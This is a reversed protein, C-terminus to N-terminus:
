LWVEILLGVVILRANNFDYACTVLSVIKDEGAVGINTNILNVEKLSEIYDLFVEDDEFYLPPHDLIPHALYVAFPVIMYDQTPTYLYMYPNEDYFEQKRYHKLTGFMDDVRSEHGYILISKDSFDYANRYDLFISGSRHPEGDPLHTLFYDNDSTQMVPYDLQTGELKIWGILGPLEYSLARFDVYPQWDSTAQVEAEEDDEGTSDMVLVAYRTETDRSLNSYFSRSQWDTYLERAILGAFVLISAVCVILVIRLIKM